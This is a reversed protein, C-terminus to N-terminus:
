AAARDRAQEYMSIHDRVVEAWDFQKAFKRGQDALRARAAADELLDSIAAAIADATPTAVQAAGADRLDSALDVASSVVSPVGAALAEVMANGFNEMRSPLAWVDAAALAELKDHDHLAGTFVVRGAVGERMALERLSPILHKDDPGVIALLADPHRLLIGRLSQVLIDLGKVPAIRGITMILPGGSGDFYRERFAGGDPLQAYDEMRIGNPAIYPPASIALDAASAAEAASKYHIMAANNLMRSQWALNTVAKRTRGRRRTYPSLSGCPAVIYPVKRRGAQLFTALQPYLYLGHVHVVDAAAVEERLVKRMSPSYAFRAPPRSRCLVIELEAAGAPMGAVDLRGRIPDTATGALDPSVIRVKVGRAELARSANVVAFSPGGGRTSLGAVIQLVKV